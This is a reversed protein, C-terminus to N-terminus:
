AGTNRFLLDLHLALHLAISPALRATTDGTGGVPNGCPRHATHGSVCWRRNSPSQGQRSAPSREQAYRGLQATLEGRWQGARGRRQQKSILLLLQTVATSSNCLCARATSLAGIDADDGVSAAALAANSVGPVKVPRDQRRTHARGPLYTLLYASRAYIYTHSLLTYTRAHTRARM